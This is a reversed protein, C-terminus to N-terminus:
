MLSPWHILPASFSTGVAYDFSDTYSAAAPVTRGANTTSLIPFLCPAGAAVNVCNGGPYDMGRDLFRDIVNDGYGLVKM